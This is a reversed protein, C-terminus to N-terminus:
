EKRDDLAAQSKSARGFFRDYQRTIEGMQALAAFVDRLEITHAIWKRRGEVNVQNVPQAKELDRHKTGEPVPEALGQRSARYWHTKFGRWYKGLGPFLGGL